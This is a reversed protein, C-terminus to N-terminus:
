KSNTTLRAAVIILYKGLIKTKPHRQRTKGNNELGANAADATTAAEPPTLPIHSSAPVNPFYREPM